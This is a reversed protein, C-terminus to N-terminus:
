RKKTHSFFMTVAYSLLLGHLIDVNCRHMPELKTHLAHVANLTILQSFHYSYHM